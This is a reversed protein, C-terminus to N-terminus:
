GIQMLLWGILVLFGVFLWSLSFGILDEKYRSLFGNWKEKSLWSTWGLILIDKGVNEGFSKKGNSQIDEKDSSRRMKYFFADMDEKNEPKTLLSVAFFATFGFLMAWAFPEAEWKYVLMLTDFRFYNIVYYSVFAIIIAAAAGHRNARKWIIGGLFAIGVFAALTETFLFAHLVNKIMLGFGVAILSLILGSYRGVKLISKDDATPKLYRKYINETFLAGSNIMFNSCTSMNAAVVAAVMLGTLGPVLLERTAYGFAEEPDDLVIGKKIVLAAVILGVLAWGITVFRKVFSGYTMGIRGSRENNGTACMSIMHPQATIGVIGNIALMIITFTTMGMNGSFLKFFDPPLSDKMGVFGNVEKLGFPILLMSLVIILIAQIFNTYASAIMGGFYTYLIFAITMTIVVMNPSIAGSTAVAIVKAAGQLMAGMNFLFFSIAFISYMLGLRKGYRDEIIEGVTTRDSRRYIPAILWYFPTILMNKWQYWISSFGHSFTAGAQAVPMEAHTGTGFSQGMMVWFSFKRDGLFYSNSSKVKRSLYIGFATILIFYGFLVTYDIWNM